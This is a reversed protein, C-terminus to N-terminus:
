STLSSLYFCKNVNQLRLFCFKRFVTHKKNRLVTYKRNRLAYIGVLGKLRARLACCLRRERRSTFWVRANTNNSEGTSRSISDTTGYQFELPVLPSLRVRAPMFLTVFNFPCVRANEHEQLIPCVRAIRRKTPLFRGLLYLWLDPPISQGM